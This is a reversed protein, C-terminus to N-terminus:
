ADKDTLEIGGNFEISLNRTVSNGELNGIDGLDTSTCLAKGALYEVEGAAVGVYHVRVPLEMQDVAWRLVKSHNQKAWKGNFTAKADQAGYKKLVKVKASWDQCDGVKESVIENTIELSIGTSGCFNIFDNPKAPDFAVMVVIDGRYALNPESM